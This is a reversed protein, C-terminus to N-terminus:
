ATVTQYISQFLYYGWGHEAQQWDRDYHQERYIFREPHPM